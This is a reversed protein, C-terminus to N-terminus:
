AAVMWFRLYQVIYAVVPPVVALREGSAVKARTEGWEQNSGLRKRVELTMPPHILFSACSGPM